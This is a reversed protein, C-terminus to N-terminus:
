PMGFDPPFAPVRLLHKIEAELADYLRVSLLGERM